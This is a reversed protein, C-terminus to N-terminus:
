EEKKLEFRFDCCAAGEMIIQSRKLVISSSFGDMMAFDRDCHFLTGLEPLGLEQYLEAYRCRTVNFDLHRESGGQWEIVLAGGDAWMTAVRHIADLDSGFQAAWRAGDQRALERIVERAVCNAQETGMARQFAELMPVLVASEIKRRELHSIKAETM